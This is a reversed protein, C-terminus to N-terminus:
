GTNQFRIMYELETGPRIYHEPGYGLPFGQKDNPDFSGSNATCDIDVWPDADDPPFQTVYGTSFSAGNSCGEVSLAPASLGPYYPVQDVQVWWTSGNAPVAIQTSDGANLQFSMQRLMVADEVVIYDSSSTMDGIGINKITFRVSDPHCHGTLLLNAGSWEPDAPICNEDPYIHAETCHTQGLTASCSVGVNFHFSGCEGVEVDGLNFRLVGNGLNTYPLTSTLATLLPDLTVIVYASPAVTTGLNCYEVAYQNNNFCRRLMPTGIVVNLAPCQINGKVLMTDAQSTSGLVVDVAPLNNCNQWLGNPPLAQLIYLGPPAYIRYKGEQDTTGYVTDTASAARILWGTLSPEGADTLCNANLDYVLTGEMAGCLVFLESDVVYTVSRSCSLGSYVILHYSGPQHVTIVPTNALFGAPGTWTYSFPGLAGSPVAQLVATNCDSAGANVSVTFLPGAPVYFLANNQHGNADTVTLSYNGEGAQPLDEGTSGDSWTYSYPPQGGAVSVYIAGYGACDTTIISDTTIIPGDQAPVTAHVVQSCGNADSVTVAYAGASLGDVLPTTAGNSWLYSLPTAATPSHIIEISGAQAGAPQAVYSLNLHAANHAHTTVITSTAYCGGGSGTVTVTYTGAPIDSIQATTAGNSWLYAEPEFTVGYAQLGGNCADDIERIASIAVAVPPQVASSVSRCGPIDATMTWIVSGDPQPATSVATTMGDYYVDNIAEYHCGHFELICNVEFTEPSLTVSATATCGGADTATVFYTGTQLGFIEIQNGQGVSWQLSYPPAGGTVSASAMGDFGFCSPRQMVATSVTMPPATFAPTFAGTTKCGHLDFISVTYTGADLDNRDETVVGDSWYYWYPATGGSTSLNVVGHGPCSVPTVGGTWALPQPESVTATTTLSCQHADTITVTYTGATCGGLDPTHQGGSWSYAYPGSGGSVALSIAGNAEGQCNVDTTQVTAALLAPEPVGINGSVTNGNADTVTVSYDSASVNLLDENVTNNSWLFTFPSTGGTITLDVSGDTGGHCTVDTVVFNLTQAVCPPYILLLIGLCVPLLVLRRM